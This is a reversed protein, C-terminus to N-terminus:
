QTRGSDVMEEGANCDGFFGASAGLEVLAVFVEVVRLCLAGGLVVCEFADLALSSKQTMSDLAPSQRLETKSSAVTKPDVSSLWAAERKILLIEM